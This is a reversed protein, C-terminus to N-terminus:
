SAIRALRRSGGAPRDSARHLSAAASTRLRRAAPSRSHPFGDEASDWSGHRRRGDDRGRDLPRRARADLAAPHVRCAAYQDRRLRGVANASMRSAFPHTADVVADIHERALFAALGEAGGFGGIRARNANARPRATVGALSLIAVVTPSMPSRGRLRARRRRAASFSCVFRAETPPEMLLSRQSPRTPMPSSPISPRVGAARRSRACAANTTPPSRWRASAPGRFASVITQGDGISFASSAMSPWRPAGHAHKGAAIREEEADAGISIRRKVGVFHDGDRRRRGKREGRRPEAPALLIARQERQVAPREFRDNRMKAMARANERQRPVVRRRGLQRRQQRRAAHTSRLECDALRHAARRSRIRAVSACLKASSSTAAKFVIASSTTASRPAANQGARGPQRSSHNSCSPCIVLRSIRAM